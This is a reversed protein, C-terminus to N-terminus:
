CWISPSEHNVSKGQIFLVLPYFQLDEHKVRSLLCDSSQINAIEIKYLVNGEHKGTDQISIFKTHLVLANFSLQGILWNGLANVQQKVTSAYM